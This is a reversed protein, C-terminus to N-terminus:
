RLLPLLLGTITTVHGLASRSLPSLTAASRRRLLLNSHAGLFLRRLFLGSKASDQTFANRETKPLPKDGGIGHIRQASLILRRRLVITGDDRYTDGDRYTDDRCLSSMTRTASSHLLFFERRDARAPRAHSPPLAFVAIMLFIPVCDIQGLQHEARRATSIVPRLFNNKACLATLLWDSNKAGELM